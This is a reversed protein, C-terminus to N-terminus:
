VGRAVVPRQGVQMHRAVGPRPGLIGQRPLTPILHAPNPCSVRPGALSAAHLLQTPDRTSLCLDHTRKLVATPSKARGAESAASELKRSANRFMTM